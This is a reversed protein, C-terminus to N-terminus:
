PAKSNLGESTEAAGSPESEMTPEDPATIALAAEPGAAETEEPADRAESSSPPLKGSLILTTYM